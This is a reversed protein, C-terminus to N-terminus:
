RPSCRRASDRELGNVVLTWLVLVLFWFLRVGHRAFRSDRDDISNILRRRSYLDM